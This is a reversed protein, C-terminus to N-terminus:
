EGTEVHEHAYLGLIIADAEHEGLDRLGLDFAVAGPYLMDSAAEIMLAKSARGNGTAWKKLTCPVIDLSPIGRWVAVGEAVAAMGWLSRTAHMGRCFPREFIILEPHDHATMSKLWKRMAEFRIARDGKFTREGYQFVKGEKIMAWGTTSGLDLALIKM